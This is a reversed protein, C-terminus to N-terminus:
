VFVTEEEICLLTVGVEVFQVVAVVVSVVIVDLQLVATTVLSVVLAMTEALQMLTDSTDVLGLTEIVIFLMVVSTIEEIFSFMIDMLLSFLIEVFLLSDVFLQGGVQPVMVDLEGAISLIVFTWVSDVIPAIDELLLRGGDTSDSVLVTGIAAADVDVFLSM